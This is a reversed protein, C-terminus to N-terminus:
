KKNHGRLTFRSYVFFHKWDINDFDNLIKFVELM